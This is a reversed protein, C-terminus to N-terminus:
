MGSKIDQQKKLRVLLDYFADVIPLPRSAKNKTRDKAITILQGNLSGTTVTHKVTITRNIMVIASWKLGLAESRRMGYFAALIIAVEIMADRVIDLLENIESASYSDGIFSEKKPRLM